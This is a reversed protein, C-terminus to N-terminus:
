GAAVCNRENAQRAHDAFDRSGSWTSARDALHVHSGNWTVVHSGNWTVVRDALHM